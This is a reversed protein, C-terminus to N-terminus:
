NNQKELKGVKLIEGFGKRGPLVFASLHCRQTDKGFMSTDHFYITGPNSEFNAFLDIEEKQDINIRALAM